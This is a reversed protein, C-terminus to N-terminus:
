HSMLVACSADELVAQTAGGFVIEVFRAHGFGGMVLLDAGFASAEDLIAEGITSVVGDPPATVVPPEVKVGQETLYAALRALGEPGEGTVEDAEAAEFIRVTEMRRLLPLADRVARAAEPASKWAIIARGKLHRPEAWQPLILCPRGSGMLAGKLLTRELRSRQPSPQPLVILDCTRGRAAALHAMVSADAQLASFEVRDAQGNLVHRLGSVAHKTEDNLDAAIEEYNEAAVGARYAYAADPLLRAVCVELRTRADQLCAHGATLVRAVGERTHDAFVLIHTWSM